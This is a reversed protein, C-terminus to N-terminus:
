KLILQRLLRSGLQDRIAGRENNAQAIQESNMGLARVAVPESRDRLSDLAAMNRYTVALVMNWDDESQKPSRFVAYDLIVGAKKQAEVNRKWGTSLWEMYKDFMGPKVRIYSIDVVPGETYPRSQAEAAPACVALVCLAALTRM